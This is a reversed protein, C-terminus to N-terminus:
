PHFSMTMLEDPTNSPKKQYVDHSGRIGPVSVPKQLNKSFFGDIIKYRPIQLATKVPYKSQCILASKTLVDNEHNTVTLNWIMIICKIEVKVKSM